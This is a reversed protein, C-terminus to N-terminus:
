KWGIKAKVEIWKQEIWSPETTAFMVRNERSFYLHYRNDTSGAYNGGDRIDFRVIRSRVEEELGAPVEAFSFQSFYLEQGTASISRGSNQELKYKRVWDLGDDRPPLLFLLGALLLAGGIAVLAKWRRRM